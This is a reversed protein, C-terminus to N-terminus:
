HLKLRKFDVRCQIRKCTVYECVNEYHKIGNEM